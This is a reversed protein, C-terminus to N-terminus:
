IGEQRSGPFHRRLLRDLFVPKRTGGLQTSAHSEAAIRVIAKGLPTFERVAFHEDVARRAGPLCEYDDFLLVGGAAMLPPLSPV